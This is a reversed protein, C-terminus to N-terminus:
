HGATAGPHRSLLIKAIKTAPVNRAAEARKRKLLRDNRQILRKGKILYWDEKVFRELKQGRFRGNPERHLKHLVDAMFGIWDPTVNLYRAVQRDSYTRAMFKRIEEALYRRQYFIQQM